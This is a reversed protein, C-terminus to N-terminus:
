EMQTLLKKYINKLALKFPYDVRDNPGWNGGKRLEAESIEVRALVEARTKETPLHPVKPM